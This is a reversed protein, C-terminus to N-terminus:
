YSLPAAGGALVGFSASSGAFVTVNTPQALITPCNSCALAINFTADAYGVTESFGGFQSSSEHHFYWRGYLPSVTFSAMDSLNSFSNVVTTLGDPVRSRVITQYDRVNVLYTQGNWSEAVGWYAWSESFTHAPTNMAGLDTVLGSPLHIAYVHSGTHLVIKGYGAFIGVNGSNAPLYIPSSLTISSGNLLGSNGDHQLLTTVTGGLWGL